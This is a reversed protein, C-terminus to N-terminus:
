VQLVPARVAEVLTLGDIVVTYVTVPLLPVQLEEIVRVTVTLPLGVTATFLALMQEPWDAVSVALPAVEYLQLM